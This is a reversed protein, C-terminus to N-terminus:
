LQRRVNHFWWKKWAPLVDCLYQQMARLYEAEERLQRRTMGYGFEEQHMYSLIDAFAFSSRNIAGDVRAAYASPLEGLAPMCDAIRHLQWLVANMERAAAGLADADMEDESLVRDLLRRRRSAAADAKRCMWIIGVTLAAFVASGLALLFWM